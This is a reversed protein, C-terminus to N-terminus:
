FITDQEDLTIPLPYKDMSYEIENPYKAFDYEKLHKNQQNTFLEEIVNFHEHLSFPDKVFKKYHLFLLIFLLTGLFKDYYRFILIASVIINIWILSNLHSDGLEIPSNNSNSIHIFVCTFIITIIIKFILNEYSKFM